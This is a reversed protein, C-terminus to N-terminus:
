VISRDAIKNCSKCIKKCVWKKGEKETSLIFHSGGCFQCKEQKKAM